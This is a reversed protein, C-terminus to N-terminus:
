GVLVCLYQLQTILRAEDCRAARCTLLAGRQTRPHLLLLRNSDSYCVDVYTRMRRPHPKLLRNSDSDSDCAQKPM